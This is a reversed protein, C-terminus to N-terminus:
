RGRLRLDGVRVNQWSELIQVAGYGVADIAHKTAEDGAHSGFCQIARRARVHFALEGKLIASHLVRIRKQVSGPGKHPKEIRIPSRGKPHGTIQGIADAIEANVSSGAESKGSSNVDGVWSDIDSWQLGHAALMAVIAEADDMPKTARPNVYEDIIYMEGQRWVALVVFEHGANEGHDMWVGFSCSSM